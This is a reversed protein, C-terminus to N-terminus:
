FRGKCYLTNRAFHFRYKFPNNKHGALVISVDPPQGGTLFEVAVMNLKPGKPRLNTSIRDM